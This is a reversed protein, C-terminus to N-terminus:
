SKRGCPSRRRLDREVIEALALLGGAVLGQGGLLLPLPTERAAETFARIAPDAIQEPQLLDSYFREGAAPWHGLHAFLVRSDLVAATCVGTLSQFFGRPGAQELFVGLWAHVEGRELRGSARMGREESFVRTQCPLRELASWTAASIRGYALVEGQSNGLEALVQQLRGRDLPLRAVLHRLNPGCDPHLAAIALDNPTDLDLRTAASVPLSQAPLGAAALRWALDNDTPPPDISDLVSAPSVAAFDTSHLNNTLVGREIALAQEALTALAPPSLLVGSGGGMYLLRPLRYCAIVERLRQGFHFHVGPEDVVVEVPLRGLEAAWDGSPTAVIVPGLSPVQLARQVLDVTNARCALNMWQEPESPGSPGTFIVLPLRDRPPM